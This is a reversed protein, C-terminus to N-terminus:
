PELQAETPTTYHTPGRTIAAAGEKAAVDGRLVVVHLRIILHVDRLGAGVECGSGAPHVGQRVRVGAAVLVLGPVRGALAREM